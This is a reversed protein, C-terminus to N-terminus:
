SVYVLGNNQRVIRCKAAPFNKKGSGYARYYKGNTLQGDMVYYNGGSEFVAGPMVRDRNNYSRTSRRVTLRSRMKEAERGGHSQVMNGYWEELSPASQKKEKGTLPDAETAKRRNVAIKVKDLFYTRQKQAMVIARNHRRYQKIHFGGEPEHIGDLNDLAMCALCYADASPSKALGYEDRFAKVDYGAATYVADPFMETLADALFPTIQNVVSLAGYKKNHGAKKKRLKEVADADNHLKDHCRGCVAALNSLTNSGGRSVPVIHHKNEVLKKRCLLCKGDQMDSLAEAQSRKGHMPGKQYKWAPLKHGAELEMFSYRSAGLMVRSVPLIGTVEKILNMHTRLLQTATPTLWGPERKRNSFRSETNIITKPRIPREIGPLIRPFAGGTDMDPRVGMGTRNFHLSRVTHNKVARRKRRLREGRRSAQRHTKRDRMLRPIDKNRTECEALYLCDGDNDVASLAISTRGPKIGLTVEQVVHTEPEYTLRITFPKPKAKVARGDRLARRVWGFRKTPMLPSGDKDLVYVVHKM